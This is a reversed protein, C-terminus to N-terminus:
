SVQMVIGYILPQTSAPSRTERCDCRTSRYRVCHVIRDHELGAIQHDSRYVFVERNLTQLTVDKLQSVCRPTHESDFLTLHTNLVCVSLRWRNREPQTFRRRSCM